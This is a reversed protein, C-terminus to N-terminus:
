TYWQPEDNIIEAPGNVRVYSTITASPTTWISDTYFWCLDNGSPSDVKPVLTGSKLMTLIHNPRGIQGSDNAVNDHLRLALFTGKWAYEGVQPVKNGAPLSAPAGTAPGFVGHAISGCARRIPVIDVDGGILVWEVGRSYAYAQLFRRLCEQLDRAGTRYDGYVGNVINTILALHTRLGRKRKHDLLPKFAGVLDGLRPGPTFTVPDWTHDDAIILYDVQKPGFNSPSAQGPLSDSPGAVPLPVSEGAEETRSSAYDGSRVSPPVAVDEPNLVLAAAVDQFRVARPSNRLAGRAAHQHSPMTAISLEISALLELNGAQDLRFPRIYISEVPVGGMVNMGRLEAIPEAKESGM